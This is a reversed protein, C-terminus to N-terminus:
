AFQKHTQPILLKGVFLKRREHQKHECDGFDLLVEVMSESTHGIPHAIGKSSRHKCNTCLFIVSTMMMMQDWVEWGTRLKHVM